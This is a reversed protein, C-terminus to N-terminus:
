NNKFINKKSQHQYQLKAQGMFTLSIFQFSKSFKRQTRARIQGDSLMYLSLYNRGELPRTELQFIVNSKSYAVESDDDDDCDILSEILATHTGALSLLM